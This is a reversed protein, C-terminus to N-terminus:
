RFMKEPSKEVERKQQELLLTFALGQFFANEQEETKDEKWKEVTEYPCMDESIHKGIEEFAKELENMIKEYDHNHKSM